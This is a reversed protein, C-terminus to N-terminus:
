NPMGIDMVVVDPRFQAAVAIGAERDNAIRVENGLIELLQGISNAADENDDVVLIRRVVGVESQCMLKDPNASM